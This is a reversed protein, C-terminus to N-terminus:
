PAPPQPTQGPQEYRNGGMGFDLTRSRFRARGGGRKKVVAFLKVYPDHEKGTWTIKFGDSAKDDKGVARPKDTAKGGYPADVPVVFLEVEEVPGTCLVTITSPETIRDVVANSVVPDVKVKIKEDTPYDLETPAPPLQRVTNQDDTKADTGGGGGKHGEGDGGSPFQAFAASAFTLAAIIVLTLPLRLKTM